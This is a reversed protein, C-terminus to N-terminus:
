LKSKKRLIDVYTGWSLQGLPRKRDEPTSDNVQITHACVEFIKNVEQQTAVEKWMGLREAKSQLRSMLFHVDCFRKRTTTNQFHHFSLQRIPPIQHRRDPLCWHNWLISPPGCPFKYDEPVNFVGREWEICSEAM